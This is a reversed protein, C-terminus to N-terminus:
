LSFLSGTYTRCIFLYRDRCNDECNCGELKSCETDLPVGKMASRIPSYIFYDPKENDVSNVCSIPLTEKGDCIDDISLYKSNAVFERTIQIYYDFTFMDITLMSNTAYLYRDVEGTSRLTKGCPAMYNIWKKSSNTKSKSQTFIHRQWGYIIPKLLPNVLRKVESSNEWNFVCEPSCEHVTYEFRLNAIQESLDLYVTDGDIKEEKLKEELKNTTITLSNSTRIEHSNNPFLTSSFCHFRISANRKEDDLGKERKDILYKEYVSPMTTEVDYNTIKNMIMDYIPLLKPSGRYFWVNHFIKCNLNLSISFMKSNLDLKVLSGEVDIVKCDHWKDKMYVTVIDNPELQVMSRTPYTDFYSRLFYIHDFSLREVPMSLYDFIYYIRNRKAYSVYGNDFFILYRYDNKKCPTEAITGSCLYNSDLLTLNQDRTTVELKCYSVVRSKIKIATENFEVCGLQAYAVSRSDLEVTAEDNQDDEDDLSNDAVCVFSSKKKNKIKITKCIESNTEYTSLTTKERFTFEEKDAENEFEKVLYSENKFSKRFKVEYIEEEESFYLCKASFFGLYKVLGM